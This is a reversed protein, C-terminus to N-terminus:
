YFAHCKTRGRQTEGWRLALSDNPHSSLLGKKVRQVVEGLHVTETARYSIPCFAKLASTSSASADKNFLAEMLELQTAEISASGSQKEWYAQFSEIMTKLRGDRSPTSHTDYKEYDMCRGNSQALFVQAKAVIDVRERVQDCLEKLRSQIVESVSETETSLGEKILDFFAEESLRGALEFQESSEMSLKYNFLSQESEEESILYGRFGWQYVRPYNYLRKVREYLPAGAVKSAQTAYILNMNGKSDIGKINYSHRIFQGNKKLKYMYFHGSSIQTLKLPYSDNAALTETGLSLGLYNAFAVVRQPGAPLHNFRTMSQSFRQLSSRASALPNKASFPLSNEYAFILRLAYTADACDASIGDYPSPQCGRIGKCTFITKSVEQEVWESYKAEWDSNWLNRATWVQAQVISSLVIFILGLLM